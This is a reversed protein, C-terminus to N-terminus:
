AGLWPRWWVLFSLWLVLFWFCMWSYISNSRSSASFHLMLNALFVNQTWVSFPSHSFLLDLSVILNVATQTNPCHYFANVLFHDRSVMWSSWPLLGFPTQTQRANTRKTENPTHTSLSVKPSSHRRHSVFLDLAFLCVFCISWNLKAMTGSSIPRDIICVICVNAASSFSASKVFKYWFNHTHTYTHTNPTTNINRDIGYQGFKITSYSLSLGFSISYLELLSSGIPAFVLGNDNTFKSSM